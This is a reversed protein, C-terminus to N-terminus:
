MASGADGVTVLRTVAETTCGCKKCKLHSRERKRFGGPLDAIIESKTEMTNSHFGFLCLLPKM